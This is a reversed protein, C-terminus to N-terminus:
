VASSSAGGSSGTSSRRWSRADGRRGAGRRRGDLRRQAEAREAEFRAVEVDVGRLASPRRRTSAGCSSRGAASRGCSPQLSEQGSARRQRGGRACAGPDARGRRAGCGISEVLTTAAGVLAPDPLRPAVQSAQATLAAAEDVLRRRQAELELLVAEATDGTFTLVGRQPDYYHGEPTVSPGTAALLQERPVVEIGDLPEFAGPRVLVTLNGLGRERAQELM